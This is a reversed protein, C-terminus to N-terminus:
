FSNRLREFLGQEVDIEEGGAEAFAELAEQQEENLSDPTVVRVEVYLDGYGGARLRPMGKGSLRFTEGSQTGAPVDMEVTGDLTEVAVTDGFVVQPYSVAQRRYLDESQREFEPHDRVSVEILLNGDPAGREGPAGEGEMRLSQGDQIGPPVSVTLTSEGQVIGDGGCSSCTETFVEGEGDCRACM